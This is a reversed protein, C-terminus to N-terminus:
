APFIMAVTDPWRRPHYRWAVDSVVCRTVGGLSM